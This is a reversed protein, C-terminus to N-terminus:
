GRDVPKIDFCDFKLFLKGQSREPRVFLTYTYPKQARDVGLLDSRFDGIEPPGLIAEIPGWAGRFVFPAIGGM